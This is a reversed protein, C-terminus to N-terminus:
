RRRRFVFSTERKQHLVLDGSPLVSYPLNELQSGRVIRLESGTTAFLIQECSSAPPVDVMMAMTGKAFNSGREQTIVRIAWRMTPPVDRGKSRYNVAEILDYDGDPISGGVFTPIEPGVGAAGILPGRATIPCGGGSHAATPESAAPDGRHCAALVLASALLGRAHM